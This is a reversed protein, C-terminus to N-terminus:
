DLFIIWIGIWIRIGAFVIITYDIIIYYTLIIEHYKSSYLDVFSYCLSM